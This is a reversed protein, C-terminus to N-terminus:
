AGAPMPSPQIRGKAEEPVTISVDENIDDYTMTMTVDATQGQINMKMELVMKRIFKTDKAVYTKADFSKIDGSFSSASGSRAMQKQVAQKFADMDNANMKLVYTETGKVTATGGRTVSVAELMTESQGLQGGRKWVNRDSVDQTRWYGGTNSYATDGDLYTTVDVSRTPLSMTMDLRQMEDKLDLVGDATIDVTGQGTSVEMDMRYTATEIDENAALAKQQIQSGTLGDSATQRGDTTQNGGGGVCGGLVALAAVAVVFYTERRM